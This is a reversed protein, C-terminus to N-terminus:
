LHGVGVNADVQSLIVESIALLPPAIRMELCLGELTNKARLRLGVEPLQLPRHLHPWHIHRLALVPRLALCTEGQRAPKAALSALVVDLNTESHWANCLNARRCASPCFASVFRHPQM